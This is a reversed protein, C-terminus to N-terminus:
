RFARPRPSMPTQLNATRRAVPPQAFFNAFTNTPQRQAATAPMQAQQPPFLNRILAELPNTMVGAGAAAGPQAAFQPVQRPAPAQPALGFQRRIFDSQNLQPAAPQAQPAVGM